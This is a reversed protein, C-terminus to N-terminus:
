LGQALISNITTGADRHKAIKKYADSKMWAMAADEDPFEILVSRTANWEGLLVRPDEDVSLMKGDFQTFVDMFGEAYKNYEERNHITIQSIIYVSM